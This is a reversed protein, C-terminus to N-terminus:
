GCATKGCKKMNDIKGRLEEYGVAGVVVEKGLVWSPTGTLSLQDAIQMAEAIGARVDASKMDKELQDTDAGAERAAALAQTKGITGRTLLLKQHFDWFKEGRLQNRAASAVQAAELSATGLVPFDKLVVRLDPNEKTLRAVDGLAKKCYGCNYDFFEVLTIKGKPNGIVSQYKSDFVQAGLTELARDRQATEEAKQRRELEALAERLVEPNHILYDRVIEGIETKQKDSFTQARASPAVALGLFIALAAASRFALSM